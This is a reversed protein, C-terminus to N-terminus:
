NDVPFQFIRQGMTINENRFTTLLTLEGGHLSEGGKMDLGGDV